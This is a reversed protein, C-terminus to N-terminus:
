CLVAGKRAKSVPFLHLNMHCVREQPEEESDVIALVERRFEDLRDKIREYGKASVSFTLTSLSREERDFRDISEQALQMFEILYRNVLVRPIERASM